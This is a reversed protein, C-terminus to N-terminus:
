NFFDAGASIFQIIPAEGMSPVGQVGFEVEISIGIGFFVEPMEEGRRPIQFANEGELFPLAQTKDGFGDNVPFGRILREGDFVDVRRVSVHRATRYLVFVSGLRTRKGNVVVPTPIMAHFFNLSPTNGRYTLGFGRRRGVIDTYALLTGSQDTVQALAPHLTEAVIANGHIWRAEMPMSCAVERKLSSPRGVWMILLSKPKQSSRENSARNGLILLTPFRFNGLLSSKEAARHTVLM